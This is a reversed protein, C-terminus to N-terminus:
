MSLMIKKDPHAESYARVRKGIDSFLYSEKINKFNENVKIKM